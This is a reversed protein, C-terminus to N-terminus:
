DKSFYLPQNIFWHWQVGWDVDKKRNWVESDEENVGSTTGLLEGGEKEMWAQNPLPQILVVLMQSVCAVTTGPPAHCIWQHTLHVRLEWTDPPSPPYVLHRYLTLRARVPFYPFPLPFWHARPRDWIAKAPAGSLSPEGEPSEDETALDLCM